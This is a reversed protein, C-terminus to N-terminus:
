VGAVFILTGRALQCTVLKGLLSALSESGRRAIPLTPIWPVVGLQDLKLFHGPM